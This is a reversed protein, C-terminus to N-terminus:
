YIELSIQGPAFRQHKKLGRSELLALTSRVMGPNGCLMVHSDAANIEMRVRRELEGSKLLQPIREHFHEDTEERTLTFFCHLRGAHAERLAQLLDGYIMESQDYVSLVLVVQKFNQWPTETALMSLYPGLGSGTALLWLCDSPPVHSLTFFGQARPGCLLSDGPQLDWLRPSLLGGDVRNFLVEHGASGPPNVLSYPRLLHKDGDMLALNVFQGAEFAPLAVEFRLSCLRANWQRRELISATLWIAM